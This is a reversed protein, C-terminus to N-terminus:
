GFPSAPDSSDPYPGTLTGSVFDYPWTKQYSSDVLHQYERLNVNPVGAANYIRIRTFKDTQSDIVAKDGPNVKIIRNEIVGGALNKNSWSPKLKFSLLLDWRTLNEDIPPKPPVPPDAPGDPTGPQSPIEPPEVPGTPPLPAPSRDKGGGGGGGGPDGAPTGSDVFTDGGAPDGGAYEGSNPFRGNKNYFYVEEATRSDADEEPISTDTARSPDADCSLGSNGTIFLDEEVSVSAVDLAVLSRRRSDVPFHELALSLQGERGQKMSVILYWEVLPDNVGEVDERDLQIAILDGEGTRANWYGAKVIAQATHTVYRRKAQAFRMAKVAHGKSTAFQTMDHPEIPASDPTDDYKVTTTRTIGSLGDDGQQRWAVEARYPQRAKPDALQYSYSGLVIAESDFVWAPKQPETDIAGSPTVPLLPRMGYRGGITSSRVLFYPGVRSLWDSTSTPETLIGDWFLGNTAMFKATATLSARDIQIEPIRRTHTLLWYYLEALNNSSGYTDDTLRTSQVGNRIFAHVSRKWYGQDENAVGYPDDGNIYVVSFSLTSMGEYTGATGCITPAPVAKAVLYNNNLLAESQNKGDVFTTTRFYLINRYVDKLFNGPAWRGARKNRSQSFQGVRCRGQFIDRVQIGGISGESLVLHYFAKVTNPLDLSVTRYQIQGGSTVSYPEERLEAPTEFRCATAKPAILVGGTNGVRRTWVIPIREFLLMAEQDKGLDLGGSIGNGSGIAMSGGLAVANAGTAYRSPRAKASVSNIASQYVNGAFSSSSRSSGGSNGSQM